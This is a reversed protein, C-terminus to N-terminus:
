AWRAWWAWGWGTKRCSPSTSARRGSTGPAKAWCRPPATRPKLPSSSSAPAAEVRQLGAIAELLEKQGNGSIGAIGLIEGGYVDFSVDDLVRGGEPSNVSLHQICLRRVPHDPEPREIDLEVKKGVMMETLTEETADCTNVTGM